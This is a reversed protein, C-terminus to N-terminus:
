KKWEQLKKLMKDTHSGKWYLKNCEKCWDGETVDPPAQDMQEASGKELEGNCVLCRSFPKHTWDIEILESLERACEEIDNSKLFLVVKDAEPFGLFHKDRTVVFRGEQVAQEYIKLDERDDEIIVTDYGAARLWRGLRVLMRDFLFKM